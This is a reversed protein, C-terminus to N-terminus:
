KCLEDITKQINKKIHEPIEEKKSALKFLLRDIDDLEKNNDYNNKKM